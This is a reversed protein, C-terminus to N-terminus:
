CPDLLFWAPFPYGSRFRLNYDELTCASPFSRAEAAGSSYSQGINIKLSVLLRLFVGVVAFQAISLVAALLCRVAGIVYAIPKLIAALSENGQPPVPPLFPQMHQRLALEHYHGGSAVLVSRVSLVAMMMRGM